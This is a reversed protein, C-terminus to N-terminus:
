ATEQYNELPEDNEALLLPPRRRYIVDGTIVCKRVGRMSPLEYMVDLLVEEITTRLGRAGTNRQEALVATAELADDTFVLEV